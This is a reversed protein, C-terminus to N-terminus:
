RSRLDFVLHCLGLAFIVLLVVSIASGQNGSFGAGAYLAESVSQLAMYFMLAASLAVILIDVILNRL